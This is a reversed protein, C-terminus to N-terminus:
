ARGRRILQLTADEATTDFASAQYRPTQEILAMVSSGTGCGIEFVRDGDLRRLGNIWPVCENRDYIPRRRTHGEIDRCGVDSDWNGKASWNELLHDRFRDASM